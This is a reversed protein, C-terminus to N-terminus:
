ATCIIKCPFVAGNKDNEVVTFVGSPMASRPLTLTKPVAKEEVATSDASDISLEPIGKSQCNKALYVAIMAHETWSLFPLEPKYFSGKFGKENPWCEVGNKFAWFLFTIIEMAKIESPFSGHYCFPTFVAYEPKAGPTLVKVIPPMYVSTMLYGIRTKVGLLSEDRTGEAESCELAAEVRKLLDLVTGGGSIGFLATEIATMIILSKRGFCDKKHVKWSVQQCLKSCYAIEGCGGCKLLSPAEEVNSCTENACRSM